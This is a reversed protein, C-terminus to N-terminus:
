GRLYFRLNEVLDVAKGLQYQCSELEKALSDEPLSARAEEALLKLSAGANVLLSKLERTMVSATQNASEERRTQDLATDFATKQAQAATEEVESVKMRSAILAAHERELDRRVEVLQSECRAVKARLKGILAERQRIPDLLKRIREVPGRLSQPLRSSLEKLAADARELAAQSFAM